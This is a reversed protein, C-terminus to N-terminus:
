CGENFGTETRLVRLLSGRSDPFVRHYEEVPVQPKVFKPEGRTGSIIGFSNLHSITKMM